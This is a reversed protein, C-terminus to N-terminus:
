NTKKKLFFFNRPDKPKSPSEKNKKEKDKKPKESIATFETKRGPSKLLPSSNRFAPYSAIDATSISCRLNVRRGGINTLNTHPSKTKGSLIRKYMPPTRPLSEKILAGLEDVKANILICSSLQGKNMLSERERLFVSCLRSDRFGKLFKQEEENKTDFFIM